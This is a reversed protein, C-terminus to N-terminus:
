RRMVAAWHRHGQQPPHDRKSQQRHPKRGVPQRKLAPRRGRPRLGHTRRLPGHDLPSEGRGIIHGPSMKHGLLGPVETRLDTIGVVFDHAPPQQHGRQAVDQPERRPQEEAKRLRATQPEDHGQNRNPEPWRRGVPRPPLRGTESQHRPRAGRKESRHSPEAVVIRPERERQQRHREGPGAPEHQQGAHQRRPDVLPKHDPQREREADPPQRM